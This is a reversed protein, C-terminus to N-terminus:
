SGRWGWARRCTLQDLSCSTLVRAPVIEPLNNVAEVSKIHGILLTNKNSWAIYDTWDCTMGYDGGRGMAMGREGEPSFKAAHVVERADQLTNVNPVQIGQAGIDLARSIEKVQLSPVRLVPTTNNVEAARLLDEVGQLSLSGHESDLMVFDFGLLGFMEVIAPAPFRVVVGYAPQGAYLKAKTVNDKM